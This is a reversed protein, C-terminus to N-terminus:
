SPAFENRIFGESRFFNVAAILSVTSKQSPEVLNEVGGTKRWIGEKIWPLPAVSDYFVPLRGWRQLTPRNDPM